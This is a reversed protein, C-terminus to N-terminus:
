QTEKGRSANAVPLDALVAHLRPGAAALNRAARAHLSALDAATDLDWEVRFNGGVLRPDALALRMADGARPHLRADAQLFCLVDGAAHAAATTADRSGGDAVIVEGAGAARASAGAGALNPAENLTPIVVSLLSTM